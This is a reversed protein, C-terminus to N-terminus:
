DNDAPRLPLHLQGDEMEKIKRRLFSGLLNSVDVGRGASPIFDDVDKGLGRDIGNYSLFVAYPNQMKVKTALESVEKFGPILQASLVICPEKTGLTYSLEGWVLATTVIVGSSLGPFADKVRASVLGKRDAVIVWM